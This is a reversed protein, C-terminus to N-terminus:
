FSVAFFCVSSPIQAEYLKGGWTLGIIEFDGVNLTAHIEM